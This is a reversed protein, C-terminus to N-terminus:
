VLKLKRRFMISDIFSVRQIKYSSIYIYIAKVWYLSKDFQVTWLESIILSITSFAQFKCCLPIIHKVNMHDRM